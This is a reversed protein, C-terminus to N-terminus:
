EPGEPPLRLDYVVVAAYALRLYTAKWREMERGVSSHNKHQGQILNTVM